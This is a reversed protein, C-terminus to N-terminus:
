EVVEPNKVIDPIEIVTTGYDTFLITGEMDNERLTLSYLKGGKFSAVTNDSIHVYAGLKSDFKFNDYESAFMTIINITGGCIAEHMDQEVIGGDIWKGDSASSRSYMHYAAESERVAIMEGIGGNDDPVTMYYRGSEVDMNVRMTVDGADMLMSCNNFSKEDFANLWQDRTMTKENDGEDHTEPIEVDPIQIVTTGYASFNVTMAMALNIPSQEASYVMEISKLRTGDFKITVSEFTEGMNSTEVKDATYAKEAANYTFVSYSFDGFMSTVNAAIDVPLDSAPSSYKWDKGEDRSFTHYDGDINAVIFEMKMNGSGDPKGAYMSQYVRDNPLDIKFQPDYGQLAPSTMDITVNQFANQSFANNWQSESVKGNVAEGGSVTPLTVSTAGYDYIQFIMSASSIIGGENVSMDMQAVSLKGGVIKVIFTDFDDNPFNPIETAVYGNKSADYTFSNYADAIAELSRTYSSIQPYWTTAEKSWTKTEDDYSYEFSETEGISYYAKEVVKVPKGGEEESNYWQTEEYVKNGDFKVIGYDETAVGGITVREINKLSVNTVQSFDFAAEWQAQTVKDSKISDPDPTGKPADDGGCAALSLAMACSLGLAVIKSYKKM